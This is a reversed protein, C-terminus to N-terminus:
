GKLEKLRGAAVCAPCVNKNKKSCDYCLDNPCFACFTMLNAAKQCEACTRRSEKEEILRLYKDLPTNPVGVPSTERCDSEKVHMWKGPGYKVNPDDPVHHAEARCNNCVTGLTERLDTLPCQEIEVIPWVTGFPAGTDYHFETFLFVSRFKERLGVFGRTEKNFVGVSLNRSRIRYTYGHRCQGLPIHDM